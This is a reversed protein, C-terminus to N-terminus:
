SDLSARVARGWFQELVIYNQDGKRYIVGEHWAIAGIPWVLGCGRVAKCGASFVQSNMLKEGAKAKGAVGIRTSQRAISKESREPTSGAM